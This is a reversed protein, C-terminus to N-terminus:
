HLAKLILPNIGPEAQQSKWNSTDTGTIYIVISSITVCCLSMKTINPVTLVMSVRLLCNIGTYFQTTWGLHDIVSKQFHLTINHFMVIQFFSNITCRSFTWKKIYSIKFFHINELILLFFPDAFCFLELEKLPPPPPNYLRLFIWSQFNILVLIWPKMTDEESKFYLSMLCSKWGM